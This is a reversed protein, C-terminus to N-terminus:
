QSLAPQLSSETPLVAESSSLKGESRERHAGNQGQLVGAPFCIWENKPTLM